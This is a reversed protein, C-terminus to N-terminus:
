ANIRGQEVHFLRLPQSLTGLAMPLETGTVLVQARSASAVDVVLTQHAQDLESALDDFCLVPWEGAHEAYLRAQALVLALACLKEQGRSLHERRPASDFSVLWDARHPGRGTHGRERDRARGDVLAETLDMGDKWGRNLSFAGLGLESLFTGLLEILIPALREAYSQRMAALSTGSQALEVEWPELLDNGAGDRLALNRQRLARQYRRWQRLFDPEVHFVGWDLFRRREDASGTILEHSGPEFCVIACSEVLAGLGVAAGDVRAEVRGGTRSLGLRREMGNARVLKGFVAYGPSDIRSLVDRQGRRFSHGHSLLFAAELLSTKGSGNAGVFANWGPSLETALDSFVRLNQIRLESLYM